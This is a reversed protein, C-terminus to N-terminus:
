LIGRDYLGRTISGGISQDAAAMRLIKARGPLTETTFRLVGFDMNSLTSLRGLLSLPVSNLVDSCGGFCQVPFQMGMRDTLSQATRCHRCGGGNAIPCNRTLMLPLRGYVLLGRPLSGGLAAAQQLTLEFSLETDTLGFETYWRLAASNTVNLSFGGHPTLGLERALGVSNLTGTWVDRFGEEATEQLSRRVSEETGFMGRPLELWVSFGRRRLEKLASLPLSYPVLISECVAAEDPVQGDPFRARLTFAAARHPETSLPVATFPIPSHQSRQELLQELVDRRLHNLVSVPVSLSDGIRCQVNAALFPTSGTKQLHETCFANTLPRTRAPQPLVPSEAAATHGAEDRVQLQVPKGEQITLVFSVPIHSFERRYLGRLHACAESTDSSDEKSRTGFMTRGRKGDPYGTTFGSRSFVHHLDRLLQPPLPQGDAALRGAHTAAAVYEPRKMRGEIKFSDIGADRLEQLRPIMSLDKLSLDHGTGGPAAFPLRCPQACQGRNGSRRGLVASFWCQGSVSMCLAGHVFSELEVNPCARHIQKIETLSLERSLVVRSFGATQCARVGAPTHISMQTSAHLPLDPCCRRLLYLLGPDQVLVADVPLSCAYQVLELAAPLEAEHLLINVALHVRVGRGHCYAVAQKLEEKSFNHAGARASFSSAGLYVADAGARVAATLAEPSGAPALVEPKMIKKM